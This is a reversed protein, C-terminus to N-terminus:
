VDVLVDSGEVKLPYVGLKAAPNEDAEGTQPDWHWGHWPCVVKGGEITGEGLPGGRHLCTNDMALYRGNLNAICVMKEGCPFEAVENVAPLQGAEAVKVFNAM